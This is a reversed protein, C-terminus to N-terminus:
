AAEATPLWLVQFPGLHFRHVVETSALANFIDADWAPYWWLGSHEEPRKQIALRRERERESMGEPDALVVAFPPLADLEETTTLISGVAAPAM